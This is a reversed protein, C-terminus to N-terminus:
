DMWGSTEWLYDMHLSHMKKYKICAHMYNSMLCLSVLSQECSQVGGGLLQRLNQFLATGEEGVLIQFSNREVEENKLSRDEGDPTWSWWM